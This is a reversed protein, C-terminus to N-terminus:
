RLEYLMPSLVKFSLLAIKSAASETDAAHTDEPANAWSKSSATLARPVSMIPM